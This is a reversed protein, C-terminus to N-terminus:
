ESRHINFSFGCDVCRCRLGYKTPELIIDLNKSKCHPCETESYSITENQPVDFQTYRINKLEKEMNKKAIYESRNVVRIYNQIQRTNDLVEEIIDRDTRIESTKKRSYKITKIKDDLKPWWVDFTSKLVDDSLKNEPLQENITMLLKFVDDKKLETHQFKDLPPKVDSTKLHWLLTCVKSNDNSSIAGAEFLLWNSDLNDPTLCIIGVPSNKLEDTIKSDWSEGKEIDVSIWPETSQITSNLWEKFIEAIKKSESGSWSIFVKM